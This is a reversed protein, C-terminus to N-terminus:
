KGEKEREKQRRGKKWWEEYWSLLTHFHDPWHAQRGDCRDIADILVDSLWIYRQRDIQTGTERGTTVHGNMPQFSIM